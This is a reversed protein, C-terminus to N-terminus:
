TQEFSFYLQSKQKELYVCVLLITSTETDGPVGLCSTYNLNRYRWTYGSLSYLQSKQIELYVWVLLIISIELYVWVLLITSTETDRPKSLCSTYNLNRYRRTYESLFYLQPKQIELYVWVLLIISIETDGPIGLCSTYNLNRYRWTYWSM